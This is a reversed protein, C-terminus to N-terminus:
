ILYRDNKSGGKYFAAKQWGDESTLFVEAGPKRGSASTAGTFTYAGDETTSSDQSGSIQGNALWNVFRLSDYYSVYNVPMNAHGARASYTYSGPTGSRTIGGTGGYGSAMEPNYLGYTDSAAVSNLFECYQSNTVEYKGIRYVYDVRGRGTDDPANGPDGVIVWDITVASVATAFVLVVMALVAVLNAKRAM